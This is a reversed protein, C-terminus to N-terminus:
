DTLITLEKKRPSPIRSFTVFLSTLLFFTLYTRVRFPISHFPLIGFSHFTLTPSSPTTSPALSCPLSSRVFSSGGSIWRVLCSSGLRIARRIM